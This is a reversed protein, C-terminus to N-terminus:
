LGADEGVGVVFCAASGGFSFECGGVLSIETPPSPSDLGSTATSIQCIPIKEFRGAWRRGGWDVQECNAVPPFISITCIPFELKAKSSGEKRFRKSCISMGNWETYPAPLEMTKPHKLYSFNLSFVGGPPLNFSSCITVKRCPLSGKCTYNSDKLIQQYPCQVAWFARFLTVMCSNTDYSLIMRTPPFPPTKYFARRKKFTLNRILQPMPVRREGLMSKQSHRQKM